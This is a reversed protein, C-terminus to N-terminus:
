PRRSVAEGGAVSWDRRALAAANAAGTGTSMTMAGPSALRLLTM